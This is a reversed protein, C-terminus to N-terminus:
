PPAEVDTQKRHYADNLYQNSWNGWGKEAYNAWGEEAQTKYM